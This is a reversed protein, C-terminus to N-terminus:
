SETRMSKPQWDNDIVVDKLSPADLSNIDFGRVYPKVLSYSTPFYLPIAYLEFIAQEESLIEADPAVVLKERGISNLLAADASPSGSPSPQPSESPEAAPTGPLDPRPPFIALFNAAEDTTPLVVGRRVIDFSRQHRDAEVEGSEKIVLEAEIRLNEKWMRIVSRAIRLQIDNRNVLLEFSPFNEGDPYGARELLERAKEVDQSIKVDSRENFPMFSFAPQTSGKMENETLRERDIAITLAERVRRDNFPARELNFEYFNLASHITQRFDEYPTLLKLTLPSFEANTVADVEGARYAQLAEEANEKPVFRVRELKVNEANWYHEARELVIGDESVAAIGFAGNTIIAPNIRDATFEHGDGFIPRFIPNAVLKPFDKDPRILTVRLEFDNVARIGYAEPSNKEAPESTAPRNVASANSDVGNQVPQSNATASNTNGTPVPLGSEQAPRSLFDPLENGETSRKTNLGVINRFLRHHAANEGIAALRRWSREFDKATVASGNSWKADRRLYFTWTKLDPSSTWEAAVGPVAKLTRPDTDTLGEFLARVVDTEPPAAAFAPDLNKPMKGNSWRFEQVPPPSTEAYFPEPKPRELESCASLLFSFLGLVLFGRWISNKRAENTREASSM